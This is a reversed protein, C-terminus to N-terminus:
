CGTWSSRASSAARWLRILGPARIALRRFNKRTAAVSAFSVAQAHSFCLVIPSGAFVCAMIVNTTRPTRIVSEGRTAACVRLSSVSGQGALLVAVFVAAFIKNMTDRLTGYPRPILVKVLSM